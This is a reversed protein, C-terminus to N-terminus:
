KEVSRDSELRPSSLCHSVNMSQAIMIWVTGHWKGQSASAQGLFPTKTSDAVLKFLPLAPKSLIQSKELKKM